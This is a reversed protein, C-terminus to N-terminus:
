QGYGETGYGGGGYGATRLYVLVAGAVAATGVTLATLFGRRTTRESM